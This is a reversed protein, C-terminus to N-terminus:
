MKFINNIKVKFTYTSCWIIVMLRIIQLLSIITIYVIQFNVYRNNLKLKLYSPRMHPILKTDIKKVKINKFREFPYYEGYVM